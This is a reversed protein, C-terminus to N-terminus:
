NQVRTLQHQLLDDDSDKQSSLPTTTWVFDLGDRTMTAVPKENLTKSNFIMRFAKRALM